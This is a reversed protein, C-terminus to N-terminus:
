AARRSTPGTNGRRNRPRDSLYKVPYQVMAKYDSPQGVLWSAPVKAVEEVRKALDFVDRYRPENRGTEYTAYTSAKVGIRAAFERQELGTQNRAKRIRDAFTWVPAQVRADQTM